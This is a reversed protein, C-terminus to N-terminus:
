RLFPCGLNQHGFGQHSPKSLTFEASNFAVIFTCVSSSNSTAKLILDIVAPVVEAFPVAIICSLALSMRAVRRSELDKRISNILMLRMGHDKPMVENCFLYGVRKEASTSGAEVLHIASPIAFELSTRTVSGHSTTLCYILVILSVRIDS